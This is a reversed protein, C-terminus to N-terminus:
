KTCRFGVDADRGDPFDYNLRFVGAADESYFCGGRLLAVGAWRADGDPQWGLGKERWDAAGAAAAVSRSLSQATISANILGESNGQVDDFVWQFLNGNFDYVRQGNSLTVYRRVPDSPSDSVDSGSRACSDNRIGQNMKGVGVAGGSWNEAVQSANWAIALWQTETILKYGHEAAVAQAEAYNINIWPADDAAFSLKGAADRAAAFRAVQFLPVVRGGPLTTTPVTVWDDTHGIGLQAILDPSAKIVRQDADLVILSGHANTYKTLGEWASSVALGTIARDGLKASFTREETISLVAAAPAMKKEM